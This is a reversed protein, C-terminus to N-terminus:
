GALSGDWNKSQVSWRPQSCLRCPGIFQDGAVADGRLVFDLWDIAVPTFAGGRPEFFTALHAGLVTPGRDSLDLNAWVAPISDPVAAYDSKAQPYAIDLPGSNVWMTPGHLHNLDDKTAGGMAGATTGADFIGSNWAVVTTVRPDTGAHLAILGGCSQGMAAVKSTDLRGFYKSGERSNEAIAWSLGALMVSPTDFGLEAIPLDAIVLYGAAAIEKLFNQYTGGPSICGGEGWLVIPLPGDADDLDALRYITHNRLGPDQEMVVAVGPPSTCGAFLTAVVLGIAVVRARWLVFRAMTMEREGPSMEAIDRAEHECPKPRVTHTRRAAAKDGHPAM